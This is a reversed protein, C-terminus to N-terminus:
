EALPTVGLLAELIYRGHGAAIDVIRVSRQEDRLRAMALRLLEEVKLKRQRFGRWGISYLYNTDIMWWLAGKGIPTNRY